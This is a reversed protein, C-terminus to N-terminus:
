RRSHAFPMVEAISDAGLQLMLLRDVGLAVGACDPLGAEMAALFATDPEPESRGLERRDALDAAFRQRLEAAVGLEHYGNALEVGAVVLEFRAATDAGAHLRALAAQEAPYDTVFRRAGPLRALGDVFALEPDVGAPGAALVEAYSSTVDCFVTRLGKM